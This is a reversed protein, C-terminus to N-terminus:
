FTEADSLPDVVRRTWLTRLNRDYRGVLHGSSGGLDRVGHGGYFIDAYSIVVSGSRLWTAAAVLSMVMNTEAWRPNEFYTVDEINIMNGLYGRVIGITSIGGARLAEIQRRILPKDALEVLCKPRGEGIAGMRSGRGAALIVARM